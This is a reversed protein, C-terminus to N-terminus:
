APTRAPRPEGATDAAPALKGAAAGAWLVSIWTLTALTFHVGVM